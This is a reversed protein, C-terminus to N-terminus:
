KQQRATMLARAIEFRARGAPMERVRQLIADRSQPDLRVIRGTSAAVEAVVEQYLANLDTGGGSPWDFIVCAQALEPPAPLRPATLVLMLRATELEMVMERLVRVVTRDDLSPRFDALVYLGNNKQRRIFELARGADRYMEGMAQGGDKILGRAASWVYFERQLTAALRRLAAIAGKEEWTQLCVIPVQMRMKGTDFSTATRFVAEMDAPMEPIEIDPDDHAPAPHAADSHAATPQAAEGQAPESPAPPAHQVVPHPEAVSQPPVPRSPAPRPPAPATPAVTAPRAAPAPAPVAARTPAPSAARAAARAPAAPQPPAPPTENGTIAGRWADFDPLDQADSSATAVSSGDSREPEPPAVRIPTAPPTAPKPAPWLSPKPRPPSPAQAGPRAAAPAPSAGHSDGNGGRRARAARAAALAKNIEAEIVELDDFPKLIVSRAGITRATEVNEPTANATMVLIEPKFNLKQMDAMLELGTFGPMHIDTLVMDIRNETFQRVAEKGNGAILLRFEPRAALLENLLKRINPDDDIILLNYTEM